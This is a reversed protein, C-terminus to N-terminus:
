LQGGRSLPATWGDVAWAHPRAHSAVRLWASVVTLPWMCGGLVGLRIGVATGVAGAQEPTHFVAGALVGAGRAWWFGCSTLAGAAIPDGWSVGFPSVGIGIILLSRLLTLATYAFTDGLILGGATTPVDVGAQLRGTPTGTLHLCFAESDPEIVRM